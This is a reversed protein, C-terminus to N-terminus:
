EKGAVVEGEIGKRGSSGRSNRGKVKERRM